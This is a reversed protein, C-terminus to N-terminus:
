MTKYTPRLLSKGAHAPTIRGCPGFVETLVEKGRMRPPSGLARKFSKDCRRKEGCARPHDLKIQPVGGVSNRKGAHAPTIRNPLAQRHWGHGKGRMRPPSGWLQLLPWLRLYKEGCARPHDQSGCLLIPVQRSKGAHAPTIGPSRSFSYSSFVKGRMRPPSGQKNNAMMLVGKKEGCARPHDGACWALCSLPHSKGAHAPTIGLRQCIEPADVGKGRMRPPSGSASCAASFPVPKEGCARPHDWGLCIEVCLLTSKGAHAPTIRNKCSSRRLFTEKGRM